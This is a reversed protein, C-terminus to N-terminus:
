KCALLMLIATCTINGPSRRWCGAVGTWFAVFVAFFAVIFLAIMSRGMDTVNSYSSVSNNVLLLLNNIFSIETWCFLKWFNLMLTSIPAFYFLPFTFMFSFCQALSLFCFTINRIVYFNPCYTYIVLILLESSVSHIAHPLLFDTYYMFSSTISSYLLKFSILHIFDDVILISFRHLHFLWHCLVNESAGQQM